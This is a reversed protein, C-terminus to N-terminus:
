YTKLYILNKITLTKWHWTKQYQFKDGGGGPSPL